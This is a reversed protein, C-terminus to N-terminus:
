GHNLYIELEEKSDLLVFTDLQKILQAKNNFMMQDIISLFPVFDLGGLQDYTTVETKIFSLQIREKEFREFSYLRHGNIPNIYHGASEQLCIDLIRDQGSLHGNDYESSRPIIETEIELFGCLTVLSHLIYESLDSTNYEVCSKIVPMTEQFEPAKKYAM